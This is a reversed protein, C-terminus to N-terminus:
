VKFKSFDILSLDPAVYGEDVYGYVSVSPLNFAEKLWKAYEDAESKKLAIRDQLILKEVHCNSLDDTFKVLDKLPADSTVSMVRIKVKKSDVLRLNALVKDYVGKGRIADHTERYGDLSVYLVSTKECPFLFKKLTIKVYLQAM